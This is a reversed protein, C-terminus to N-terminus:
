QYVAENIDKMNASKLNEEAENILSIPHINRNSKFSVGYIYSVAISGYENSVNYFHLDINNIWKEIKNIFDKQNINEAIICFYLDGINFIMEKTFSEILKEKIDHNLKDIWERKLEELLRNKNEVELIAFGIEFNKNLKVELINKLKELNNHNTFIPKAKDSFLFKLFFLIDAIHYKNEKDWEFFLYGYLKESNYPFLPIFIPGKQHGDVPIKIESEDIIENTITDIIKDNQSIYIKSNKWGFYNTAFELSDKLYIIPTTSFKILKSIKDFPFNNKFDDTIKFNKEWLERYSKLIGANSGEKCFTDDEDYFKNDEEKKHIIEPNVKEIFILEIMLIFVLYFLIFFLIPLGIYKLYYDINYKIMWMYYQSNNIRLPNIQPFLEFTKNIKYPRIVPSILEKEILYKKNYAVPLWNRSREQIWVAYFFNPNISRLTDNKVEGFNNLDSDIKKIIYFAEDTKAKEMEPIQCLVIFILALM